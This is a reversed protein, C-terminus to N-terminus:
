WWPKRNLQLVAGVILVAIIGILVYLGTHSQATVHTIHQVITPHVVKQTIVPTPVPAAAVAPTSRHLAYYGAAIIAGIGLLGMGTRVVVVNPEASSTISRGGSPLKRLVWIVALLGVAAAPWPYRVAERWAFALVWGAAHMLDNKM